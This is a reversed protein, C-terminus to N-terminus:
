SGVSWLHIHSCQGQRASYPEFNLQLVTGTDPGLDRAFVRGAIIELHCPRASERSAETNLKIETDPPKTDIWLLWGASWTDLLGVPDNDKLLYARPKSSIV